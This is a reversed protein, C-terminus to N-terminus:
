DIKLNISRIYEKQPVCNGLRCNRNCDDMAKRVTAKDPRNDRIEAYSSRLRKIREEKQAFIRNSNTLLSDLRQLLRETEADNSKQSVPVPAGTEAAILVVNYFILFIIFWLLTQCLKNM